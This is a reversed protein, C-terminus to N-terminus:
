IYIGHSVSVSSVLSVIGQCNVTWCQSNVTYNCSGIHLKGVCTQSPIYLLVNKKRQNPVINDSFKYHAFMGKV